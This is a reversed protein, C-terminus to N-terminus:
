GRRTLARGAASGRKMKELGVNFWISDDKTLSM